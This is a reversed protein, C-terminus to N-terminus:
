KRQLRDNYDVWTYLDKRQEESFNLNNYKFKNQIYIKFGDVKHANNYIHGSIRVCKFNDQYKKLMEIDKTYEKARDKAYESLDSNHKKDSYGQWFLDAIIQFLETFYWGESTRAHQMFKRYYERHYNCTEYDNNDQWNRPLEEDILLEKYNMELFAHLGKKSTPIFRALKHTVVNAWYIDEEQPFLLVVRTDPFHDKLFKFNRETCHDKCIFRKTWDLEYNHHRLFVHNLLKDYEGDIIDNCSYFLNATSWAGGIEYEPLRKIPNEHWITQKNDDLSRSILHSMFEGGLGSPYVVYDLKSLNDKVTEFNLNNKKYKTLM